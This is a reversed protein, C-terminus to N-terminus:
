ISGFRKRMTKQHKFFLSWRTEISSMTHSEKMKESLRAPGLSDPIRWSQLM